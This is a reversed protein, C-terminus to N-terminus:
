IRAAVPQQTRSRNLWSLSAMGALGVVAGLLATAPGGQFLVGDALTSLGFAVLGVDVMVQLKRRDEPMKQIDELM